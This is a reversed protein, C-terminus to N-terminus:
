NRSVGIEFTIKATQIFNKGGQKAGGFSVEYGGAYFMGDGWNGRAGDLAHAAADAYIELGDQLGELRDQSHRIEVAMQASGSFRRFKETLRNVVKDCYVNLAPYQVGGGREALDAAVNQARVHTADLRETRPQNTPVLAALAANVGKPGVLLAVVKAASLAGIQKTM